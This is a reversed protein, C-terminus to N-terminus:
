HGMGKLMDIGHEITDLLVSISEKAGEPSGPLNIILTDGKIGSVGRSLIARSTNKLGTHRIFESIGPVPREVVEATAEPTVDRPSLGTGGTTLILEIKLDVYYNLRNKIKEKEDSVIEYGCVQFGNKELIDKINKGSIDNEKKRTDSISLVTAKIM